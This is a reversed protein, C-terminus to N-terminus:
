QSGDRGTGLFLDAGLRELADAIEIAERAGAGEDLMEATLSSLGARERGDHDAGTRLVLNLAVIPAVERRVAVVEIGNSLRFQMPRPAVLSPLIGVPPPAHMQPPTPDATPAGSGPAVVRGTM